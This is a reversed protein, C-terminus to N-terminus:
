QSSWRPSTTSIVLVGAVYALALLTPYAVLDGIDQGIGQAAWNATEKAYPDDVLIASSARPQRSSRL